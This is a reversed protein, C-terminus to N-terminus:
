RYIMFPQAAAMTRGMFREVTIMRRVGPEGAGRHRVPTYRDARNRLPSSFLTVSCVHGTPEDPVAGTAAEKAAFRTDIGMVPRRAAPSSGYVTQTPRNATDNRRRMAPEAITDAM